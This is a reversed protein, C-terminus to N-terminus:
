LETDGDEFDSGSPEPFGLTGVWEADEGEVGVGVGETEVEEVM